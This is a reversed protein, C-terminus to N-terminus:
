PGRRRRLASVDEAILRDIRERLVQETLPIAHSFEPTYIYDGDADVHIWAIFSKAWDVGWKRPPQWRSQITAVATVKDDAVVADAPRSSRHAVVRVAFAEDDDGDDYHSATAGAFYGIYGPIVIRPQKGPAALGVASAIATGLDLAPLRSVEITDDNSRQCALYGTEGARYALIRRGPIDADSHHVRCAVWIEAAVYADTWERFVSLDAVSSRPERRQKHPTYGFPYPVGEQGQLRGLAALDDVSIEGVPDM